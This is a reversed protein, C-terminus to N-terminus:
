KVHKLPKLQSLNSFYEIIKKESREKIKRINPKTTNHLKAITDLVSSPTNKGEEHYNYLSILIEKDRESLTNLADKLMKVNISEALESDIIEDELFPEDVVIELNKEKSYYEKILSNLENKAIVSMWAKFCNDNKANEPTSFALPKEYIKYFVNNIITQFLHEDYIGMKKLSNKVVSSLFKSYEKYLDDFANVASKEDESKYDINLLIEELKELQM